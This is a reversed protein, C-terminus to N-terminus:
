SVRTRVIEIGLAEFPALAEPPADRATALHILADAPGIGFPAVTGLKDASAVGVVRDASELLVRRM